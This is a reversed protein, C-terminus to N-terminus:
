KLWFLFNNTDNKITKGDLKGERMLWGAACFVDNENIKALRSISEVDVEGWMDLIKFVMGADNGIKATLNTDGLSFSSEQKYIKNEKALWGIASYLEKETLGTKEMLKNETLSGNTNLATWIKGAYKGFSDVFDVMFAVENLTMYKGENFVNHNM